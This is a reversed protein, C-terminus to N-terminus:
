IMDFDMLDTQEDEEGEEQVVAAVQQLGIMELKTRNGVALFIDGDDNMLLFGADAELGGRFSYPFQFITGQRLQDALESVDDDTELWYM